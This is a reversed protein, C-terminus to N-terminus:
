SVGNATPNSGVLPPAPRLTLPGLPLIPPGIQRFQQSDANAVPVVRKVVAIAALARRRFRAAAACKRASRSPAWDM